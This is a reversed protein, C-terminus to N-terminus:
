RCAPANLRLKRGQVMKAGYVEHSDAPTADAVADHPQALEASLLGVVPQGDKHSPKGVCLHARAAECLGSQMCSQNHRVHEQGAHKGSQRPTAFAGLAGAKQVAHM